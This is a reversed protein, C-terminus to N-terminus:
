DHIRLMGAEPEIQHKGDADTAEVALRLTKGALSKAVHLRLAARVWKGDHTVASGRAVRVAGAATLRGSATRARISGLETGADNVTLELARLQKWAKPHKWAIAVKATGGARAAFRTHAMKLVGVGLQNPLEIGATADGKDFTAYDFDADGSLLDGSKGDGSYLGDIGFGGTLTDGSLLSDVLTDNGDDGALTVSTTAAAQTGGGRASLYDDGGGGSIDVTSADDARLDVDSDPGVMVGGLSAVRMTEAGSGGKISLNMFANNNHVTTEIESTGDSEPTKGPALIGGRYDIRVTNGFAGSGTVFIKDTNLINAVVGNPDKCTKLFGSGDDIAISSGSQKITLQTSGLSQTVRVNPILPDNVFTCTAAAQAAGTGAALAAGGVTAALAIRAATSRSSKM